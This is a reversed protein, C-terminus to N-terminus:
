SAVLHDLNNIEGNIHHLMQAMQTYEISKQM